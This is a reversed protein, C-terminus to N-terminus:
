DRPDVEDRVFFNIQYDNSQPIGIFMSDRIKHGPLIPLGGDVFQMFFREGSEFFQFITEDEDDLIKGGWRLHKTLVPETEKPVSPGHVLTVAVLYEPDDNENEYITSEGEDIVGHSFDNLVRGEVMRLTGERVARENPSEVVAEVKRVQTQSRVM